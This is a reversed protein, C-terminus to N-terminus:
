FREQIYEKISTIVASFHAIDTNLKNIMSQNNQLLERDLISHALLETMHKGLIVVDKHLMDRYHMVLDKKLQIEQKRYSVDHHHKKLVHKFTQKFNHDYEGHKYEEQVVLLSTEILSMIDQIHSLVEQKSLLNYDKSLLDRLEDHQTM